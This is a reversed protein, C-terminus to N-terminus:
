ARLVTDGEIPIKSFVFSGVPTSLSTDVLAHLSIPASGSVIMQRAVEGFVAEDTVNMPVGNLNFEVVYALIQNPENDDIDKENADAPNPDVMKTSTVCPLWDPIDVNAFPEGKASYLEAIGKAEDVSLGIDKTINLMQPTVVTAQIHASLKPLGKPKEFPSKRTPFTMKFNSLDVERILKEETKHGPIPVKVDILPLLSSIWWPVSSPQHMSGQVKVIATQGSLYQQAFMDIASHNAGPCQEGLSKPLSKINAFVSLENVAFPVLHIPLNSLETAHIFEGDECGPLFLKWRLEPFQASISFNYFASAIASIKLGSFGGSSVPNIRVNELNFQSTIVGLEESPNVVGLVVFPWTGLPIIGKSIYLKTRVQFDIQEELMIRKVISALLGSDGFNTLNTIIDFETPENHRINIRMGPILATVAHEYPSKKKKKNQFFALGKDDNDNNDSDGGQKFSLSASTNKLSLSHLPYAATRLFWSRYSNNDVLTYNINISGKIRLNVGENTFEKFQVKQIDVTTANIFEDEWYVRMAQLVVVLLLLLAALSWLGKASNSSM